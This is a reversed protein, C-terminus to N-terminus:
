LLTNHSDLTKNIKAFEADMEARMQEDTLEKSTSGKGGGGGGAKSSGRGM